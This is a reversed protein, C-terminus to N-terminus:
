MIVEFGADDLAEIISNFDYNEDIEITAKGLEVDIIKVNKLSNLAKKVSEVCHNCGMGDIKIEKIM